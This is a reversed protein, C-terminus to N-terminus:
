IEVILIGSKGAPNEKLITGDQFWAAGGSAVDDPSADACYPNVFLVNKGCLSAQQMYEFKVQRNWQEPPYDCWVPWLVVDPALTKMEEARGETWLDGCLGVSFSKGSYFFTEFQQGERYHDDTKTYDKWGVSVRHFLNQIEGNAGIFIQSSYLLGEVREIFGFSVAVAYEKAAQRMKLIPEDNMSVAVAKDEEYNWSLCDFGQLVSEGFVVLEAANRVAALADLMAQLNFRVNKNKVPASVLAIRM